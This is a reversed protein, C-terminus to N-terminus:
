WSPTPQSHHALHKPIDVGVLITAWEGRSGRGAWSTTVKSHPATGGSGFAVYLVSKLSQTGLWELCPDIDDRRGYEDRAIEMTEHNGDAEQLLCMPGVPIVSCTQLITPCAMLQIGLFFWTLIHIFIIRHFSELMAFVRIGIGWPAKAVLLKRLTVHVHVVFQFLHKM